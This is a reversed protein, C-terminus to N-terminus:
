ATVIERVGEAARGPRKLSALWLQLERYADGRSEPPRGALYRAAGFMIKEARAEPRPRLTVLRRALADARDTPQPPGAEAVVGLLWLFNKLVHSGITEIRITETSETPWCAELFDLVQGVGLEAVLADCHKRWRAPMDARDNVGMHLLSRRWTSAQSPELRGLARHIDAAWARREKPTRPEAVVLLFAAKRKVSQATTSYTGKLAGLYDRVAEALEGSLGHRRAHKLAREVPPAVDSGHGCRHRSAQLLGIIDAEELELRSSYLGTALEYLKAGEEWAEGTKESRLQPMRQVAARLLGVREASSLEAAADLLEFMDLDRRADLWALGRTVM